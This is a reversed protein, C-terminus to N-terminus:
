RPRFPLASEPLGAALLRQHYVEIPLCHDNEAKAATKKPQIVTVKPEPVEVTVKPAPQEIIITQPEAERVVERIIVREITHRTVKDGVHVRNNDGQINVGISNRGQKNIASTTPVPEPAPEDAVPEAVPEPQEALAPAPNVDAIAKDQALNSLLGVFVCAAVLVLLWAFPRGFVGPERGMNQLPRGNVAPAEEVHVRNM